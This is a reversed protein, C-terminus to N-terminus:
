SIILQENSQFFSVIKQIVYEQTAIDEMLIEHRASHMFHLIGNPWVNMRNRVRIPDVIREDEALFTICPIKPSPLKSLQFTEKLASDVWRVSPGGLKLAPYKNVQDLLYQWTEYNNTLPNDAFSEDFYGKESTSPAFNQRNKFTKILKWLFVCFYSPHPSLKIGWMPCSFAVADFYKNQHLARLIIAGGMSHGLVFWPKPLDFNHAWKILSDLDKLYDSFTEIHGLLPNPTLRDALGHGRWDLSVSSYGHKSFLKATKGYKEIYESYGPCIFVTGIPTKASWLGVRIRIKDKTVVWNAVYESPGHSVDNFLPSQKFNKL